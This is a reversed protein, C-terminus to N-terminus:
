FSCFDQYEGTARPLIRDNETLPLEALAEPEMSWRMQLEMGSETFNLWCLAGSVACEALLLCGFALLKVLSHSSRPVLRFGTYGALALFVLPLVLSPLFGYAWYLAPQLTPILFQTTALLLLPYGILGAFFGAFRWSSEKKWYWGTVGGAIAALPAIVISWVPQWAPLAVAAGLAALFLGRRWGSFCVLTPVVAALCAWGPAVGFCAALLGLALVALSAPKAHTSAYHGARETFSTKPQQEVSNLGAPSSESAGAENPSADRVEDPLVPQESAPNQELM